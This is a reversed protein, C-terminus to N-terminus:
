SFQNPKQQSLTRGPPYSLRESQGAHRKVILNKDQVWLGSAENRATHHKKLLLILQHTLRVDKNQSGGGWIRLDRVNARIPNQQGQKVQLLPSFDYGPLLFSMDMFTVERLKQVRFM